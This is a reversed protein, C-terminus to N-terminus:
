YYLAEVYVDPNGLNILYSGHPLVHKPDYQHQAMREKFALISSEKM